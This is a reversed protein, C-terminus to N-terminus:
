FHYARFNGDKNAKKRTANAKLGIEAAVCRNARVNRWPRMLTTLEVPSKQSFNVRTYM